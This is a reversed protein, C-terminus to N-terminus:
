APASLGAQQPCKFGVRWSVLVVEEQSAVHMVSTLLLGRVFHVLCEAHGMLNGLCEPPRDLGLVLWSQNAALSLNVNCPSCLKPFASASNPM